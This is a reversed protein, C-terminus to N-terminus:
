QTNYHIFLKFFHVIFLYIRGRYDQTIYSCANKDELTQKKREEGFLLSVDEEIVHM